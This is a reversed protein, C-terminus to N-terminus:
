GEILRMATITILLIRVLLLQLQVFHHTDARVHQLGAFPDRLLLRGLHHLVGHLVGHYGGRDVRKTAGTRRQDM